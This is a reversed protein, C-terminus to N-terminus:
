SLPFSMVIEQVSCLAFTNQSRLSLSVSTYFMVLSFGNMWATAETLGYQSVDSIGDSKVVAM